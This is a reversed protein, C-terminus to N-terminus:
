NRSDSGVAYDAPRRHFEVSPSLVNRWGECANNKVNAKEFSLCYAAHSADISAQGSTRHAAQWLGCIEDWESITVGLSGAGGIASGGLSVGSAYRCKATPAPVDLAPAIASSAAQKYTAKQKIVVQPGVNKVIGVQGQGQHQGQGQSQNQKNRLKNIDVDVNKNVNIAKADADGGKGIGVGIGTGEASSRSHATARANAEAEADDGFWGAQAHHSFAWAFIAIAILHRM